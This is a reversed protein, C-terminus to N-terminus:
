KAKNILGKLRYIESLSQIGSFLSHMNEIGIERIRKTDLFDINSIINIEDTEPEKGRVLKGAKREVKFFLEIAHLPSQLHENVFLFESVNILLGTEEFFERKLADEMSELFQPEGGPPSWLFGNKGLGKHKVLLIHDDEILIGCIRIRLKKGFTKSIKAAFKDDM